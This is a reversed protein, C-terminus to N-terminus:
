LDGRSKNALSNPRFDANNPCLFLICSLSYHVEYRNNGFDAAPDCDVHGLEQVLSYMSPPFGVRYSRHCDKSSVGCNAASTAPMIMLKPLVATGQAASEKYNKAFAHMVFVKFHLGDDRTIPIVEGDATKAYSLVSECAHTLTGM